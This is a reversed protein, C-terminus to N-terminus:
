TAARRIASEAFDILANAQRFAARLDNGSVDFFGYHAEDKLGLLRRLAKAAGAGGPVVQEVLRTAQQHDQGRPRRGLAACCAADAAAIGALVALAAAASAYEVDGAEGATM